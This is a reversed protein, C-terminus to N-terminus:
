IVLYFNYSQINDLFNLFTCLQQEFDVMVL